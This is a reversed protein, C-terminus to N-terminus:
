FKVALVNAAKNVAKRISDDDRINMRFEIDEDDAASGSTKVRLMSGRMEVGILINDGHYKADAAMGHRLNKQWKLKIGPLKKKLAADLYGQIKAQRDLQDQNELLNYMKSAISM